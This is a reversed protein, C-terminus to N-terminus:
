VNLLTVNSGDFPLSDKSAVISFSPEQVRFPSPDAFEQIKKKSEHILIIAMAKRQQAESACSVDCAGCCACARGNGFGRGWIWRKM